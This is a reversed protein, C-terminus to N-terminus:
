ITCCSVLSTKTDKPDLSISVQVIETMPNLKKILSVLRLESIIQTLSMEKVVVLFINNEFVSLLRSLTLQLM